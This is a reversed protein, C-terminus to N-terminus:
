GRLIYQPYGKRRAKVNTTTMRSSERKACEGEQVLFSDNTKITKSHNMGGKHLNLYPGTQLLYIIEAGCYKPRESEGRCGVNLGPGCFVILESTIVCSRLLACWFM